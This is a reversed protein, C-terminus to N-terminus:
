RGLQEDVEFEAFPSEECLAAATGRTEPIPRSPMRQDLVREVRSDTFRM